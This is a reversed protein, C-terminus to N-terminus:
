DNRIEHSLGLKKLQSLVNKIPRPNLCNSCTPGEGYISLKAGCVICCKNAKRRRERREEERRKHTSEEAAMMRCEQSCYLQVHHGDFESFCWLCRKM